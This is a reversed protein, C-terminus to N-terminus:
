QAACQESIWERLSYGLLRTTSSNFWFWTRQYYSNPNYARTSNWQEGSTTWHILWSHVGRGSTFGSGRITLVSSGSPGDVKCGTTTSGVDICGTINEISFGPTRSFSADLV